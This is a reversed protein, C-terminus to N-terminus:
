KFWIVWYWFTIDFHTLLVGEPTREWGGGYLWSAHLMVQPKCVYLDDMVEMATIQSDVCVCVCM